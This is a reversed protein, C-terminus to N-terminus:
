AGVFLDSQLPVARRLEQVDLMGRMFIEGSTQIVGDACVESKEACNGEDCVNHAILIHICGRQTGTKDHQRSRLLRPECNWGGKGIGDRAIGGVGGEVEAASHFPYYGFGPLMNQEIGVDQNRCVVDAQMAIKNRQDANGELSLRKLLEAIGLSSQRGPSKNKFRRQVEGCGIYPLIPVLSSHM